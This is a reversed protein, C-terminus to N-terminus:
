IKGNKVKKYLCTCIFSLITPPLPNSGKVKETYVLHEVLQALRGNKMKM